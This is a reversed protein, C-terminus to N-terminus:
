QRALWVRERDLDQNIQLEALFAKKFSTEAIFKQKDKVNQYRCIFSVEGSSPHPVQWVRNMSLIQENTQM